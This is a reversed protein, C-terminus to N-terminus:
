NEVATTTNKYIISQIEESLQREKLEMEEVQSKLKKAKNRERNLLEEKERLANEKEKTIKSQKNIKQITEDVEKEQIQLYENKLRPVELCQM